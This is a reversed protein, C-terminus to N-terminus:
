LETIEFSPYGKEGSENYFNTFRLKYNFGNVNKLIYSNYDRIQYVDDSFVKWDYGIADRATSYSYENMNEALIEYFYNVTDLAVEINKYPNLFVGRVLYDTPTGFDDPIVTSYKTFCIDWIAKDPESAIFKGGDDFSFLTFNVTPDKPVQFYYEESNDLNAFHIYFTDNEMKEFVIKKLGFAEGSEDKGRDVVYVYQNFVPSSQITLDVWDIFVTSDLNGSSHDFYMKTNQSSKISIFDTDFTNGAYMYRATNLIIHYGEASSEFGLDWDSFHNYSVISKNSINYYTQYEYMSYPISEQQIEIPIIQEDEKFCSTFAIVVLVIFCIIYSRKMNNLSIIRYDQLIYEAM